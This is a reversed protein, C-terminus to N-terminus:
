YRLLLVDVWVGLPEVEGIRWLLSAVRRLHALVWKGDVSRVSPFRSAPTPGVDEDSRLYLVSRKASAMGERGVM